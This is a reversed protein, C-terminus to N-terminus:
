VYSRDYNYVEALEVAEHVAELPIDYMEALLETSDGRRLGGIIARTDIRTYKITSRGGCVLPQVVVYKGIPYYEQIYGNVNERVLPLGAITERKKKRAKVAMVIGRRSRAGFPYHLILQRRWGLLRNLDERRTELSTRLMILSSGKSM